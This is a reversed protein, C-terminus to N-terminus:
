RARGYEASFDSSLVRYEQVSDLPVNAGVNTTFEDRNEGGDLLVNTSAARQGNLSFGTGRVMQAESTSVNGATAVLDYPNRTITPLQTIEAGTVVQSLAQSQTEVQAGEQATVEVTTGATGVTLQADITNRSGVTVNVRRKFSTFGQQEVAVDYAGPELNSIVYAGRSDANVTRVTQKGVSTVTVKAGPVIAGSPDSVVGSISGTEIQAVTLIPFLFACVFGILVGRRM